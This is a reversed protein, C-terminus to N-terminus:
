GNDKTLERSLPKKIPEPLEQDIAGIIRLGCEICELNPKTAAHYRLDESLQYFSHVLDDVRYAQFNDLNVILEAGSLSVETEHPKTVEASVTKSM